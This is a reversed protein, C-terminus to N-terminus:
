EKKEEKDKKEKSEKKETKSDATPEPTKTKENAKEVLKKNFELLNEDSSLAEDLRTQVKAALEQVEKSADTEKMFAEIQSDSGFFVKLGNGEESIVYFRSLGPALTDVDKIKLESYVYVLYEGEQPGDVVYCEINRADEVYEYKVKLQEESVYDINTVLGELAKMDKAVSAKFYDQMLKNIKEDTSQGWTHTAAPEETPPTTPPVTQELQPTNSPQSSVIKSPKSSGAGMSFALLGIFMTGMSVLIIAKKYKLKM